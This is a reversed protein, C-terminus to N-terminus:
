KGLEEQVIYITEFDHHTIIYQKMNCLVEITNFDINYNAFIDKYICKVKKTEIIDYYDLFINFNEIEVISIFNKKLIITFDKAKELKLCSSFFQKKLTYKKNSKIFKAILSFAELGDITLSNKLYLESIKIM